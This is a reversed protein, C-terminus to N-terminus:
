QLSIGRCEAEPNLQFNEFPITTNAIFLQTFKLVKPLKEFYSFNAIIVM